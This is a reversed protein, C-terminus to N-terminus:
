AARAAPVSRAISLLFDRFATPTASRVKKTASPLRPGRPGSTVRHTATGGYRVGEVVFARIKLNLASDGDQMFFASAGKERLQRM